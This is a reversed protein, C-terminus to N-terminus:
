AFKLTGSFDYFEQTFFPFLYTPPHCKKIITYGTRSEDDYVRTNDPNKKQRDTPTTIIGTRCKLKQLYKETTDGTFIKISLCMSGDEEPAVYVKDIFTDIFDKTITGKTTDVEAARLVSRIKEM